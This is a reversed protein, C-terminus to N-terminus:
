AGCALAEILAYGSGEHHSALIFIDAARCLREVREHAVRGILHVREALIPSAEIRAKVQELLPQEHFCCWLHLDALDPAAIEIADLVTFPDKNEDLRGVWLVAPDGFIGTAARAEHQSGSTFCTSSEPVSFLRASTRISGEEFFPRAQERDTFALAAVGALGWRRQHRGRGARSAHDQALVPIGTRSMARTHAPFDLGNVHIVSPGLKLAIRAMRWPALGSWSGPLAPERVFRCTVGRTEFQADRGFSQLLTVEVGADAVAAAVDILTSWEELLRDPDTHHPPRVFSAQVVRM